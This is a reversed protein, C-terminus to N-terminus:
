TLANLVSMPTLYPPRLYPIGDTSVIALLNGELEQPSPIKVQDLGLLSKKKVATGGEVSGSEETLAESLGFGVSSEVGAASKRETAESVSVSRDDEKESRRMLRSLRPAV